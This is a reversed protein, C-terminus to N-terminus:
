DPVISNSNAGYSATARAPNSGAVEPSANWRAKRGSGRAVFFLFARGFVPRAM